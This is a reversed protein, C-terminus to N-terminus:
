RRQRFVFYVVTIQSPCIYCQSIRDNLPTRAGVRVAMCHTLPHSKSVLLLSLTAISILALCMLIVASLGAPIEAEDEGKVQGEEM